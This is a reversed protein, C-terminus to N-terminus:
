EESSGQGEDAEAVTAEIATPTESELSGMRKFMRELIKVKTEGPALTRKATVKELPYVLPALDKLARLGERGFHAPDTIARAMVETWLRAGMHTIDVYGWSRACRNLEARLYEVMESGRREATVEITPLTRQEAEIQEIGRRVDDRTVGFRDATKAVDVADRLSRLSQAPSDNLGSNKPDLPTKKNATVKTRPM